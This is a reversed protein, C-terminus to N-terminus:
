RKVRLKATRTNSAGGNPTFTIRARLKVKGRKRLKQKAAKALKLKVTITGPGGTASSPKLGRAAVSALPGAARASAADAVKVEGPSSVALSLTRGKVAGITFANSPPIAAGGGGGPPPPDAFRQVRHNDLDAVYLNGAPDSAVQSPTSMEGGLATTTAGITCADGNAPVCIEFGGGASNGPGSSVVDKGWARLFNGAPDFKQIRHNSTDAVIVNGAPDIAVGTPGDLEGGLKTTNDGIKCIDGSAAVCIEFGTGTNGPGQLPPAGAHLPRHVLAGGGGLFLLFFHLCFPLFPATAAFFFRQM